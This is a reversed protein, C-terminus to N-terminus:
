PQDGNPVLFVAIGVIAAQLAVEIWPEVDLTGAAIAAVVVGLVATLAKAITRIYNM